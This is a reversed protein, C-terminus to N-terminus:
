LSKVWAKGGNEQRRRSSGVSKEGNRSVQLEEEKSAGRIQVGTRQVDRIGGRKDGLRSAPKAKRGGSEGKKKGAEGLQRKSNRGRKFEL